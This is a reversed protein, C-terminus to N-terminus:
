NENMKKEIESVKISYIYLIKTSTPIIFYSSNKEDNEVMLIPQSTTDRIELMDTFNDVRLSQYGTLDFKSNVKQIYSRYNNLIRKLEKEYVTKATRTNRIYIVLNIILIIDIIFALLSAIVFMFNMPSPKNCIMINDKNNVLNNTIDFAMTKNTLPIELATISENATDSIFDECSGIVDVYLNIRLLNETENLNYTRIFKLILDNYKNYDIKVKEDILVNKERTIYEQNPLLVDDFEYLNKKTIRDKVTVNAEIRYFYKYEVNERELSLNYKFNAEIYDILESIYQNDKERNNTKYFANDKLYVDYEVNSKEDYKVYQIQNRKVYMFLFTLSIVFIITIAVSFSIINNRRETDDNFINNVQTKKM